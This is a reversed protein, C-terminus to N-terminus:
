RNQVTTSPSDDGADAIAVGAVIVVASVAVVAGVVTGSALTTAATGAAVGGTTAGTTSAASTATGTSTSAGETGTAVEEAAFSLSAFSVLLLALFSKVTGVKYKLM